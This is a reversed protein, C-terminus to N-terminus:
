LLLLLLFWLLLHPSEEAVLCSTEDNQAQEDRWEISIMVYAIKEESRMMKTLTKRMRGGSAKPLFTRGPGKASVRSCERTIGRVMLGVEEQLHAVEEHQAAEQHVQQKAVLM